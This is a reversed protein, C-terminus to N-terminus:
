FQDGSFGVSKTGLFGVLGREIVIEARERFGVEGVSEELSAFKLGCSVRISISLRHFDASKVNKDSSLREHQYRRHGAM